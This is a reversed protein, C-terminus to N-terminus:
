TGLLALSETSTIQGDAIRALSARRSLYAGLLAIATVGAQAAYSLAGPGVIYALTFYRNNTLLQAEALLTRYDDVGQVGIALISLAALIGATAAWGLAIRWHGAVLLVAPVALTLMWAPPSMATVFAPEIAAVLKLTFEAVETDVRRRHLPNKSNLIGPENRSVRRYINM